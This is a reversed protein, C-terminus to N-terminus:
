WSHCSIRAIGGLLSERKAAQSRTAEATRSRGGRISSLVYLPEVILKRGEVMQPCDVGRGTLDLHEARVVDIAAINEFMRFNMGVRPNCDLLRYRGDRQDKRWDMDVIGSYSITRLLKETEFCLEDNRCSIGIATSGSGPPYDLLKMGTFSVYLDIKANCYGHYIWDEGPIYEQLVLSSNEPFKIQDFLELLAKQTSIVKVNYRDNMLRWQKAAKVVIPFTANKAFERVDDTSGPVISQACPVSLRECM